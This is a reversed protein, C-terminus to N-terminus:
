HKNKECLLQVLYLFRKKISVLLSSECSVQKGGENSIKQQLWPDIQLTMNQTYYVKHQQFLESWVEKPTESSSREFSTASVFFHKWWEMFLGEYTYITVTGKEM